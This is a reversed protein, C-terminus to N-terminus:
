QPGLKMLPNWLPCARLQVILSPLFKHSPSLPFSIGYLLILSLLYQTLLLLLIDIKISLFFFPSFSFVPSVSHSLHVSFYVSSCHSVLDSIVICLESSAIFLWLHGLCFARHSSPASTGALLSWDWYFLDAPHLWLGENSRGNYFVSMVHSTIANKFFLFGVEMM